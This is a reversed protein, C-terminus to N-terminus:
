RGSSLLAPREDTDVFGRISGITAEFPELEPRTSHCVAERGV